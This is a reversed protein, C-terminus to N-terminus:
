ILPNYLNHVYIVCHYTSWKLGCVEQEHGRYTDVIPSRVRVDNNLIRGDMGGTTLIHNNWALSGVRQRHGGRLTRLHKDSTTDWLQVESNNLGVVFLSLHSLPPRFM